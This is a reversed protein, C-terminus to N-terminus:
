HAIDLAICSSATLAGSYHCVQLTQIRMPIIAFNRVQLSSWPCQLPRGTPQIVDRGQGQHTQTQLDAAETCLKTFSYQM